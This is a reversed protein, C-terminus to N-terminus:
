LKIGYRTLLAIMLFYCGATVTMSLGMSLYFHLGKKLLVPLSIFFGPFPHSVLFRQNGFWVSECCRQYRHLALANSFRIHDAVLSILHWAIFKTEIAGIDGRYAPEHYYDQNNHLENQTV